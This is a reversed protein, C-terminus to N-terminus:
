KVFMKSTQNYVYGNESLLKIENGFGTIEKLVAPNKLNALYEALDQATKIEDVPVLDLSKFLLTLDMPDSAAWIDDGRQIAAELWPQNFNDWFKPWSGNAAIAEDSINLINFGGKKSGFQQTKLDGLLEDYVLAKMDGSKYPYRVYNGIITTTKNPNSAIRAGSSLNSAVYSPAGSVGHYIRLKGLIGGLEKNNIIEVNRVGEYFGLIEGTNHNGFLLDGTQKDLKLYFDGDVLHAFEKSTNNWVKLADNKSLHGVVNNKWTVNLLNTKSLNGNALRAVNDIIRFEGSVRAIRKGRLVLQRFIGGSVGVAVVGGVYYSATEIDYYYGAYIAGIGDTVVDLGVPMLLLGLKDISNLTEQYVVENKGIKFYDDSPSVASWGFEHRVYWETFQQAIESVGESNPTLASEFLGHKITKYEINNGSARYDDIQEKAEMARLIAQNQYETTYGTGYGSPPTKPQNSEIINVQQVFSSLLNDVALRFDYIFSNGTVNDTEQIKFRIIEGNYTIAYPIIIHPKPVLTYVSEVVEFINGSAGKYELLDPVNNYTENKSYFSKSFKSKDISKLYNTIVTENWVPLVMYIVDSSSALNSKKYADEALTSLQESSPKDKTYVVDVFIKNGTETNFVKFRDNLDEIHFEEDRGTKFSEGVSFYKNQSLQTNLREALEDILKTYDEASLDGVITKFVDPNFPYTVSGSAKYENDKWNESLIFKSEFLYFKEQADIFNVFYSERYTKTINDYKYLDGEINKYGLFEKDAGFAATYHKGEEEFALLIGISLGTSIYTNEDDSVQYNYEETSAIIDVKGTPKITIPMGAPSVFTAYGNEDKIYDDRKAVKEVVMAGEEEDQAWAFLM